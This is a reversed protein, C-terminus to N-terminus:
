RGCVENELWNVVKTHNYFKAKEVIFPDGIIVDTNYYLWKVVDLHGNKAAFSIANNIHNEVGFNLNSIHSLNNYLFEVVKLHGNAAALSIARGTYYEKRNNYIWEIMELHGHEAAIEIIGPCEEVMSSLGKIFDLKNSKLAWCWVEGINLNGNIIEKHLEDFTMANLREFGIFPFYIM